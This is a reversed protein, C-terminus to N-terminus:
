GEIYEITERVKEILEDIAEDPMNSVQAQLTPLYAQVAMKVM